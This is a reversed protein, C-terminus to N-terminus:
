PEPPTQQQYSGVVEGRALVHGRMAALLQDRTAGLPLDLMRDLAFLQVHYRHAPDGVPPRPGYYGVAGRGNAGQMIGDLGPGDLRDREQLGAPLASLSAPINWATWHVMPAPKSDPDEMVLAYSRAGPVATWAVPLSVGQGYEAHAIPIPAGPAFAPSTVSLAVAAGGSPQTEPRQMALPVGFGQATQRQMPEAPPRAPAFSAGAVADTRAVRYIMGNTDDTFLLAGDPAIALGCLRGYNSTGDASLFGSVFPEVRTARGSADYRVRVLEYGSAPRRNWSGRLTVFADGAVEAGMAGGGPHFVLQMGASHAVHLLTPPVSAAAWEANTVGGQPELQPYEKGDEMVYPWGYRKGAELRNVEERQLDNGLWDIGQDWGWLEGTRPHWDFGITHRLGSAFITRRAGDPAIRLITASEPSSETCTNCTSGIGLYLMGDPGFSMHRTYHQGADPLDKIIRTEPGVTGDARLEAVFLERATGLYLKGEHVTMGLLGPHRAVVVPPGDAVGDRDADRLRIVDAQSNRNVYVDGNPALALFRANALGSAFVSVRYGPAVKLSRVFDPGPARPTTEYVYSTIAPPKDDDGKTQAHAPHAAVATLAVVAAVRTPRLLPLM